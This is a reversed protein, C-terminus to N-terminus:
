RLRLVFVDSRHNTDGAVLYGAASTVLAYRGTEDFATPSGAFLRRTRGTARDHVFAQHPISLSVEDLFAVIRGDGSITPGFRGPLQAGASSVSVRQTEGTTEDHVFVDVNANTDGPVLTSSESDFAVFRGDSSLDMRWAGADAQGGASSVSSRTTRGTLRDHVFIDWAGNTDRHVLDSAASGFAVYRGDASLHGTFSWDNAQGGTSSVSVRSTRGAMRDRIFIDKKGNTDGPVLNSAESEFAVFRGDDSVGAAQSADNGQADTTSISARSTRGTVRDHVFADVTGNSDGRVLTSAWSSFAVYRGDGSIAEAWTDGNGQRGTSSVSVRSTRRTVTDFVFADWHGNTDGRVLDSSRSSFLVFRGDASMAAAQSDGVGEAGSSSLSVRRIWLPYRVATVVESASAAPTWGPVAPVKLRWQRTTDTSRAAVVWLRGQTVQWVLRPGPATVAVGVRVRRTAGTSLRTATTWTGDASRSQLLVPRGVPGSVAVTAVRARGVQMRAPLDWADVTTVATATPAVPAAASLGVPTALMAAFAAVLLRATVQM